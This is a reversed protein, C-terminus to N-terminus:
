DGTARERGRERTLGAQIWRLNIGIRDAGPQAWSYGLTQGTATDVVGLKLVATRTNQYTLRALEIAYGTPRVGDPVPLLFGGDHWRADRVLVYDDPGAAPDLRSRKLAVWGVYHLVRRAREVRGRSGARWTATLLESDIGFAAPLGPCDGIVRGEYGLGLPSWRYRCLAAGRVEAVIGGADGSFALTWAPADPAAQGQGVSLELVSEGQRRFRWHRRDDVPKGDIGQQWVQEHNDYEGVLLDMLERPGALCPASGLVLVLAGALLLPAEARNTM